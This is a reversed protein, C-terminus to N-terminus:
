NGLNEEKWGQIQRKKQKQWVCTGLEVVCRSFKFKIMEHNKGIQKNLLRVIISGIKKECIYKLIYIKFIEV